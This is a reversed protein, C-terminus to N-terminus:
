LVVVTLYVTFGSYSYSVNYTGPVSTDVTNKIEVSSASVTQYSSNIVRNIYDSPSFSAGRRLYLIYQSLRILPKAAGSNSIIVPLKLTETDGLTNTVQVTLSYTGEFNKSINQSVVRISGSLDDSISDSATLRDLLEVPSAVAYILPANLSFHPKEYDTYCLTRSIGAMNNASDFVIYSIKATNDTILPTIGKIMIYKTLDGDRDDYASLGAMLEEDSATVSAYIYDSSSTIVPPTKDTYVKDFYALAGFVILVACFIIITLREIIKM